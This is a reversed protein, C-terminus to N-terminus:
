LGERPNFPNRREFEALLEQSVSDVKEPLVIQVTVLYDGRSADEKLGPFGKESFRFITGSQTGTPIKMMLRGEPGPVEIRAGRVAEGVSIPVTAYINKGERRFFRHPSVTIDLYLDGPPGGRLGPAGQGPVRIRSGTDVGAPIHVEIRRDLIRVTAKIGQFAQEFDVNLDYELDRGRSAATRRRRRDAQAGFFDSFIDDFVGRGTNGSFGGFGGGFGPTGFGTGGFPNAQSRFHSGNPDLGAHGFQDYRTRKDKDGLIEYAEALEKFRTESAKSNNNLDPHHRRALRRYAKKIEDDSATRNVGLVTYPDSRGM